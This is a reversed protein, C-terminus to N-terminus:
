ISNVFILGLFVEGKGIASGGADQGPEIGILDLVLKPPLGLEKEFNGVSPMSSFKKPDKAYTIFDEVDSDALKKFIYDVASEGTKFKEATFGQDNIYSMISPKFTSTVLLKEIQQAVEDNIEVGDLLNILKQKASIKEKKEEEAENLGMLSELLAKDKPDNLDPYGKPFKYAVRNLFETLVDMKNKM